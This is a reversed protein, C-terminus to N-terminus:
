IELCLEWKKGEMVDITDNIELAARVLDGYYFWYIEHISPNIIDSESRVTRPGGTFDLGENLNAHWFVPENPGGSELNRFAQMFQKPSATTVDANQRNGMTTLLQANLPPRCLRREPPPDAVFFKNEIVDKSISELENLAFNAM